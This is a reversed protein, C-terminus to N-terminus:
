ANGRQKLAYGDPNMTPMLFLHMGGVIRGARADAARNDCLWEAFRPLFM